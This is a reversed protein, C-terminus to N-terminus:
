KLYKIGEYFFLLSFCLLIIGLIRMIIMYIKQNLVAKSRAVLIAIIIKSGVLLTYFSGLFLIASLISLEYARFLIPTGVTAWFIYAHPSLFNAMIGRKMSGPNEEKLEPDIGRSRLTDIGLHAVFIGGAFAIIALVTDFGSLRTYLLFAMAIIPLDTILPSLAVKIGETRNHRITQAIVLTLLPGPSIGATLGLLAGSLVFHYLSETM